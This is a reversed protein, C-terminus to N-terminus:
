ASLSVKYFRTPTNANITANIHIDGEKNKTSMKLLLCSTDGSEIENKTLYFGTCTCDPNVSEIVLRKTGTNVFYYKGTVSSDKKVKGLEIRKNLLTLIPMNNSNAALSLIKSNSKLKGKCSFLIVFGLLLSYNLIMTKM